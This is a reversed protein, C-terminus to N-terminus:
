TIKGGSSIFVQIKNEEVNLVAEQFEFIQNKGDIKKISVNRKILSIFNSHLPLVDFPGKENASSISLATNKFIIGKTTRVTVSLSDM